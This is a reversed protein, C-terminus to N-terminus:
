GAHGILRGSRDFVAVDVAVDGALVALASERARAAVTAALPLENGALELIRAASSERELRALLDGEAGLEAALGILWAPDVPTAKSHLDSAGAALKAMKAFGGGLTLRPLPHGRLYKLLAGVFGGMDIMAREDLGHLRRVEAESTKGTCGAVHSLGTARAVDVGRHIANIWAACSYPIVVGTTGLISLGGLIGLRGNMTGAALLEGGPIAVTITLDLPGGGSVARLNAEIQARPGPNIAAEGVSLPLGPLTVTGVGEGARFVLGSGPNGRAVTVEIIAGHTVDPDDGADKVVAARAWGEGRDHRALPFSPTEGRPLVIDVPDPFDGTALATWAAKAAAAACAGTTWGKRLPKDM